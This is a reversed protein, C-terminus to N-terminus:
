WKRASHATLRQSFYLHFRLDRWNDGFRATDIQYQNVMSDIISLVRRDLIDITTIVLKKPKSFLSENIYMYAHLSTM